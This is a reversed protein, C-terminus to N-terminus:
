FPPEDVPEPRTVYTQGWRTKITATGDEEVTVEAKDRATAITAATSRVSTPV